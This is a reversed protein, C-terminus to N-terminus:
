VVSKRDLAAVDDARAVLREYVARLLEGRERPPVARWAPAADAAAALARRGDEPSADAVDFLVEETAPDAVEFTRGGTAPGWHGDVLIGTPLHSVFAPSLTSVSMGDLIVLM